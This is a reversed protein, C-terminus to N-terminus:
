NRTKVPAGDELLDSPYLVVQQGVALGALVQAELASRRGLEIARPRAVGDAVVFVTWDDGDRFLAGMPVIVVDKQEWLLIRLEVRYGDGLAAWVEPDGTPDVIVNVRQEEVGLASIKTFGGPEVVRVRGRLVREEGTPSEGGWGEVLAVMGPRVKVADQTLYDAVVELLATNGIEILPSGTPLSRASEEFVRIVRGDIPSRLRLRRGQAGVPGEDHQRGLTDSEIEKGAPEGLTARALQQEFRAVQVAFQAARLGERASRENRRASDLDAESRINDQVLKHVRQLEAVTLDLDAAAQDSRAVMEKM